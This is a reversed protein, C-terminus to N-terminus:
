YFRKRTKLNKIDEIHKTRIISNEGNNVAQKLLSVIEWKNKFNVPQNSELIENFRNMVKNSKTLFTRSPLNISNKLECNGFFVIMSFVPIGDFHYLKKLDEVHKKNQLIPNYFKYKKKGYALIQTWNIQNENGFIWGRYEKIEFVVIGVNTAVVLDIQSYKGNGNSLYIDHFIATSKFGSKLIKLVMKRESKTGRNLNTVTKLLERDKFKFYVFLSVVSLLILVIIIFYLNM